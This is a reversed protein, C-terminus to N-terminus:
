VAADWRLTAVISGRSGSNMRWRRGWGGAYAGHSARQLDQRQRLDVKVGFQLAGEVGLRRDIRTNHHRYAGGADQDDQHRADIEDGQHGGAGCAARQFHPNALRGPCGSARQDDLEHALRQEIDKQAATSATASASSARGANL